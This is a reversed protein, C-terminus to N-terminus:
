RRRNNIFRFFRMKGQSAMGPMKATELIDLNTVYGRNDRFAAMVRPIGALYCQAWWKSLKYKRFNSKKLPRSKNSFLM